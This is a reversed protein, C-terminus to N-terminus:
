AKMFVGFARPQPKIGDAGIVGVVAKHHIRDDGAPQLLERAQRLLRHLCLSNFDFEVRRVVVIVVPYQSLAHHVEAGLDILQAEVLGGQRQAVWLM